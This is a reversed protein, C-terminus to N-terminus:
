DSYCLHSRGAWQGALGERGPQLGTGSGTRAAEFSGTHWLSASAPVRAGPLVELDSGPGPFESDLHSPRGMGTVDHGARTRRRRYTMLCGALHM